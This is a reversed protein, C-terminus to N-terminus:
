GALRLERAIAQAAERIRRAFAGEDWREPSLVVEVAANPYGDGVPIPAAIAVSGEGFQVLYGHQNCSALTRRIEDIGGAVASAERSPIRRLVRNRWGAPQAATLAAGMATALLPFVKGEQARTPASRTGRVHGVYMAEATEPTDTTLVGLFVNEGSADYLRTLHVQAAQRLKLQLESYQALEWVLSGVCYRGSATRSLLGLAVLDGILRHVTSRPIGSREVLEKASLTNEEQTFCRLLSVARSLLPPVSPPSAREVGHVGIGGRPRLAASDGGVDQIQNHVRGRRQPEAPRGGSRPEGHPTCSVNADAAGVVSVKEFM